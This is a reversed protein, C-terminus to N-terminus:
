KDEVCSVNGSEPLYNHEEDEEEIEVEIETKTWTETPYTVNSGAFDTETKCDLEAFPKEDEGQCAIKLDYEEEKIYEEKVVVVVNPLDVQQTRPGHDM